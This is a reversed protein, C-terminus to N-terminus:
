NRLFVKALQMIGHKMTVLLLNRYTLDGDLVITRVYWVYSSIHAPKDFMMKLPGGYIAPIPTNDSQIALMGHDTFIPKALDVYAFQGRSLVLIELPNVKLHSFLRNFRVGEFKQMSLKPFDSDKSVTVDFSGNGEFDCFLDMSTTHSFVRFNTSTETWVSFDSTNLTKEPSLVKKCVLPFDKGSVATSLALLM